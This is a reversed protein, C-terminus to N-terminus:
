TIDRRNYLFYTLAAAFASFAILGLLSIGNISNNTVIDAANIYYFPSIYRLFEVKNSMSAIVDLFYLILVLGISISYASKRRSFFLALLFGLCAFTLHAFFPAILLYGLNQRSFTVTVFQWFSIYTILAIILNFFVVYMILCLLKGTLIESRTIPKALLFDITKEDEEKALITTGLIAAFISGFLVIILYSQTAHYGVPDNLSLIDLGFIKLVEPPYSQLLDQIQGTDALMTPFIAMILYSLAALAGAWIFLLKRNTKLERQFVPM